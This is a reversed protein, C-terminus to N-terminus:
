YLFQGFAVGSLAQRSGDDIARMRRELDCIDVAGRLYDEDAPSTSVPALRAFFSQLFVFLSLM